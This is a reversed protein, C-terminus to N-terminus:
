FELVDHGPKVPGDLALFGWNDSAGAACYPAVLRRGVTFHNSPDREPCFRIGFASFHALEHKHDLVFRVWFQLRGIELVVVLSQPIPAM